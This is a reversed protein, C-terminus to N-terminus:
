AAGPKNPGGWAVVKAEQVLSCQPCCCVLGYDPCFGFKMRYKEAIKGRFLYRTVDIMLAGVIMGVLWVIEMIGRLDANDAGEGEWMGTEPNYEITGSQPAIIDPLLSAVIILVIGGAQIGAVMAM